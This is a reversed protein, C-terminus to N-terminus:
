CLQQCKTDIMELVDDIAKMILKAGDLSMDPRQGIECESIYSRWQRKYDRLSDRVTEMQYVTLNM